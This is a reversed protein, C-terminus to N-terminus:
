RVGTIAPGVNNAVDCWADALFTAHMHRRRVARPRRSQAEVRHALGLAQQAWQEYDAFCRAVASLTRRVTYWQQTSDPYVRNPLQDRTGAMAELPQACLGFCCEHRVMLLSGHAEHEHHTAAIGFGWAILRTLGHLDRAADSGPMLVYASSRQTGDDPGRAREFGYARLANGQAHHIDQGWYWLQWDLLAALARREGLPM